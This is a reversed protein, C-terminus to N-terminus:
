ELDLKKEISLNLRVVLCNIRTQGWKGHGWKGRFTPSFLKRCM